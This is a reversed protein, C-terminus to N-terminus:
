CPRSCPNMEGTSVSEATRGIAGPLGAVIGSLIIMSIGNGIGRETIQQRAVDPVDHRHDDDRHRGVPVAAPVNVM